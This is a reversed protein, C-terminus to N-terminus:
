RVLVRVFSAAEKLAAAAEPVISTMQLFGHILGAQEREFVQVGAERARNALCRSDDSLPDCEAGMVLLAPLGHLEALLPSALPDLAASPEVLYQSRFWAMRVTSIGYAGSGFRAYSDASEDSGFVGYFLLGAEPMAKNQSRLTLMCAIALNAGASDGAILLRDSPHNSRLWDWAIVCDELPGPFKTEPALRYDIGIVEANAELALEAMPALHTGNNGVVWGGGHLYLVRTLNEAGTHSPYIRVAAIVGGSSKIETRRIEIGSPICPKWLQQQDEFRQRAEDPTLATLDVGPSIGARITRVVSRVGPSLLGDDPLSEDGAMTRDDCM